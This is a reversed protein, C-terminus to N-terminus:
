DISPPEYYRYDKYGRKRANDPLQNLVVGIVADRGIADVARQAMECKTVAAEVVLIAADALGALIKADPLLDVPPTDLVVWDFSRAASALRLRLLDSTLAGM